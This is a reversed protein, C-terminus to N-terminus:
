INVLIAGQTDSISRKAEQITLPENIISVYLPHTKKSVNGAVTKSYKIYKVALLQEKKTKGCFTFFLCFYEFVNLFPRAQIV